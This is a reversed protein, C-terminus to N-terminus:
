RPRKWKIRTGSEDLRAALGSTFTRVQEMAVRAQEPGYSTRTHMVHNRFVEKFAHFGAVAGRYFQMADSKQASATWHRFDTDIHTEITRIITEWVAYDISGKALRVRREKALARLAIEVARMLHFVCATHLDLALANGADRIDAVASPFAAHVQEGFLKENDIHDAYQRPVSVAVERRLEGLVAERLNCIEVRLEATTIAREPASLRRVLRRAAEAAPAMGAHAECTKAANWVDRVASVLVDPTVVLTPGFQRVGAELATELIALDHLVGALELGRFKLMDAFSVARTSLHPGSGTSRTDLVLGSVNNCGEPSVPGTGGWRAKRGM